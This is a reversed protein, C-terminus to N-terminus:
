VTTVRRHRAPQRHANHAAAHAPLRQLPALLAEFTLARLLWRLREGPVAHLRGRAVGICLLQWNAAATHGGRLQRGRRAGGLAPRGRCTAALLGALLFRCTLLFHSRAVMLEVGQVM